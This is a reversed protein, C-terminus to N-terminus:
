RPVRHEARRKDRARCCARCGRGSSRRYITNAEDYLHGQPCHTKLQVAKRTGALHGGCFASRGKAKCDDMNDAPTGLFLHDPRVCSPNDCSHCVLLSGPQEGRLWAYSIRHARFKRRGIKFQGYGHKGLVATWLWCGNSYGFSQAFRALDGPRPAPTVAFAGRVFEM